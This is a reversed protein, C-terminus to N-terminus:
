FFFFFTDKALVDKSKCIANRRKARNKYKLHNKCVHRKILDFINSVILSKSSFLNPLASNSNPGGLGGAPPDLLPCKAVFAPHTNALMSFFDGASAAPSSLFYKSSSDGFPKISFISIAPAPNKFIHSVLPAM